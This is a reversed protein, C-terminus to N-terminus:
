QHESKKFTSLGEIISKTYSSETVYAYDRLFHFKSLPFVLKTNSRLYNILEVSANKPLFSYDSNLAIEKDNFSDMFSIICRDESIHKLANWKSIDIPIIDIAVNSWTVYFLDSYEHNQLDNRVTEYYKVPEEGGSEDCTFMSISAERNAFYKVFPYKKAKFFEHLSSVKSITNDNTLFNKQSTKYIMCGTELVCGDVCKLIDAPVYKEVFTHDNGTCVYIDAIHSIEKLLSVLESQHGRSIKWNLDLLTGHLDLAIIYRKM